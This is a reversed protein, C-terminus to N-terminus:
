GDRSRVKTRSNGANTLLCGERGEGAKTPNQIAPIRVMMGTASGMAGIGGMERPVNQVHLPM